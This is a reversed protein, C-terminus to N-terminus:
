KINSKYIVLNGPTKKEQFFGYKGITIQEKLIHSPEM